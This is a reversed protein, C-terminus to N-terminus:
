ENQSTGRMLTRPLSKTKQCGELSAQHGGSMM